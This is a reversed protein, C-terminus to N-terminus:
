RLRVQGEGRDRVPGRSERDAQALQEALSKPPRPPAPLTSLLLKVSEPETAELKARHNALFGEVAKIHGPEGFHQRAEEETRLLRDCVYDHWPLEVEM